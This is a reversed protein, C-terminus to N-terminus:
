VYIHYFINLIKLTEIWEFCQINSELFINLLEIIKNKLSNVITPLLLSLFVIFFLLNFYFTLPFITLSLYIIIIKSKPILLFILLRKLLWCYNFYSFLLILWLGFIFYSGWYIFNKELIKIKCIPSRKWSPPWTGSRYKKYGYTGMWITYERETFYGVVPPAIFFGEKHSPTKLNNLKESLQSIVWKQIVM